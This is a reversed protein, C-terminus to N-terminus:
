WRSVVATGRGDTSTISPCATVEQPISQSASAREQGKVSSPIRQVGRSDAPCTPYARVAPLHDGDRVRDPLQSCLGALSGVSQPEIRDLHTALAMFLQATTLADGSAQHPRHVPLGMGAAARSLGPSTDMPAPSPDRETPARRSLGAAILATDLTLGTLRIGVRKFAVSLFGVHVSAGHAVLVRGTLAELIPDLAEQLPPAGELDVQRLGHVRIAEARPMRRPRVIVESVKGIIARGREVPVCAVSIIEDRHPEPGTAELGLVAYSAERWPVSPAPPTAQLYGEVAESHRERIAM